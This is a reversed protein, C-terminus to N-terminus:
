TAWRGSKVERIFSSWAATPAVFTPGNQQKSDRIGVRDGLAAVSVCSGIGNDSSYSSKFWSAERAM